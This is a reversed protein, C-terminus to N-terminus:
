DPLGIHQCIRQQRGSYRHMRELISGEISQHGIERDLRHLTAAQEGEARAKAEAAAQQEPTARGHCTRSHNYIWLSMGVCWAALGGFLWLQVTESM